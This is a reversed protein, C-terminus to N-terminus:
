LEVQGRDGLPIPLKAGKGRGAGMNPTLVGLRELRARMAEMDDAIRAQRQKLETSIFTGRGESKEELVEVPNSRIEGGPTQQTFLPISLGSHMQGGYLGTGLLLADASAPTQPVRFITFEGTTPTYNSLDGMATSPLCTSVFSPAPSPALSCADDSGDDNDGGISPLVRSYEDVGDHVALVDWENSSLCQVSFEFDGMSALSDLSAAAASVRELGMPGVDEEVDLKGRSADGGATSTKAAASTVASSYTTLPLMDPVVFLEVAPTSIYLGESAKTGSSEPTQPVGAHADVGSANVGAASFAIARLHNGFLM